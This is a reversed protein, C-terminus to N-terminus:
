HLAGWHWQGIRQNEPCWSTDELDARVDAEQLSALELPEPRLRGWCVGSALQLDM